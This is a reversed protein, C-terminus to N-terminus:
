PDQKSEAHAVGQPYKASLSKLIETLPKQSDNRKENEIKAIDRPDTTAIWYELPTASVRLLARDNQSILFVESYVGKKQRLSEILGIENDNLQLVEKTRGPNSKNQTLIWKISCNPLIAGAIKSKAFDDIDQSIAVAAANYKRFTRFVEEIFLVGAENRMLKWCEDLILFKKEGRNKQVRRWVFDTIVFLFVSQLDPFSELGKLDFCVIKQKLDMCSATDLLRGYPTDGCWSTLIKGIRRIEVSENLLLMSRLHSLRPERESEYIKLIAEEIESRELKPLRAEDDEKTMLEVLTVLFKIKQDSPQSEGELLDFPNLSLSQDTGLPIYQGSLNECLKEYSGGIDVFYVHPDEKLMQFIQLNTMFSKGSGSGGSVLQNFNTLTTSFPDFSVLNGARSTFLVSPESHGTWAGYLPILDSLNSTKIKQLREKATSNPLSSQCFIPFSALSEIVAEAGNMARIVGLVDSVKTSLDGLDKSKLAVHLQFNFIKEGSVVLENLLEEIEQLKANSELDSVGTKKGSVMSYAVRRSLKLSEIEKLQDPVQVTCYLRSDFPLSALAEALGSFTVDPINKLSLVRFHTEGIQFGQNTLHCDSFLLHDRVEEENFYGLAAGRDPNWEQYIEESLESPGLLRPGLGLTQFESFIQDRLRLTKQMTDQYEMEINKLKQEKRFFDLLKSGPDPASREVRAFIYLSQKPLYGYSDLEKLYEARDGAMSKATPNTCESAKMSFRDIVEGNGGRISQFIQFSTGQPLANLFSSVGTKISNKEEDSKCSIDLPLFTMAFGLAGDAFVTVGNDFGYIELYETLKSSKNM